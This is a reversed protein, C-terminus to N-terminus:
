HSQSLRRRPAPASSCRRPQRLPLRSPNLQLPLATYPLTFPLICFTCSQAPPKTKPAQNCIKYNIQLSKWNASSDLTQMTQLEATRTRLRSTNQSDKGKTTNSETDMDEGDKKAKENWEEQM